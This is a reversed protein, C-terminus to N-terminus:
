RLSDQGHLLQPWCQMMQLAQAHLGPHVVHRLRWRRVLYEAAFAAAILLYGGVHQYITVWRPLADVDLLGRLLLAMLVLAQLGLLVAWFTTVQRAYRPVGPVDLRDAGELVRIFRAVLPERGGRLTRGFWWSLGLMILLPLAELLANTLGLAALVLVAAVAAAWSLWASLAGGFLRPLMWVTLLLLLAALSFGGRRTVAGAIALVPYALLLPLTVRRLAGASPAM